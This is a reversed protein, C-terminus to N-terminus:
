NNLVSQIILINFIYMFFIVRNQNTLLLATWPDCWHLFHFVFPLQVDYNQIIIPQFIILFKRINRLILVFIKHPFKSFMKRSHPFIAEFYTKRGKRWAFCKRWAFKEDRNNLLWVTKRMWNPILKWKHTKWFASIGGVLAARAIEAKQFSM